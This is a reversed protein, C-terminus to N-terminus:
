ARSRKTRSSEYIEIWQEMPISSIIEGITQTPLDDISKFHICSKGMDLKKGAATFGDRLAMEHKKSGYVSMLYLSCYNKQAALAVYTLPHGNYTAPLRELPVVYGIMGFDVHEAYGKPLHKKVLKRADAIPQRRDAPLAAIYEDATKATKNQM